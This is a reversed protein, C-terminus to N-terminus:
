KLIDKIRRLRAQTGIDYFREKTIFAALQGQRILVPYIDEELSVFRDPKILDLVERKLAMVGADV